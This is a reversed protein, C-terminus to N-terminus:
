EFAFFILILHGFLALSAIAKAPFKSAHVSIRIGLVPPRVMDAPGIRDLFVINDRLVIAPGGAFVVVASPRTDPANQADQVLVADLRREIGIRKADMTIGFRHFRHMLAAMFDDAVGVGFIKLERLKGFLLLAVLDAGARLHKLVKDAHPRRTPESGAHAM